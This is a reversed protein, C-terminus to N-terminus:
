IEYSDLSLLVIYNKISLVVSATLDVPVIVLRKDHNKRLSRTYSKM